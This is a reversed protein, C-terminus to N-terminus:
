RAPRGPGPRGPGASPTARTTPLPPLSRTTGIPRARAVRQVLVERTTARHEILARGSACDPVRRTIRHEEVGPAAAQGALTGPVDHTVAPSRAPCPRDAQGGRAAGSRRWACARGRRRCGPPGPAGRGRWGTSWAPTCLRTGLVAALPRRGPEGVPRRARSTAPSPAPSRCYVGVMGSVASLTSRSWSSPSRM